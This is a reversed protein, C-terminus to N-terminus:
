NTCGSSGCGFCCYNTRQERCSRGVTGMRIILRVNDGDLADLARYDDPLKWGLGTKVDPWMRITRRWHGPVDEERRPSALDDLLMITITYIIIIIMVTM